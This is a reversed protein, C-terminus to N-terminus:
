PLAGPRTPGPLPRASFVADVYAQPQHLAGATTRAYGTLAEAHVTLAVCATLLLAIPLYEILRLLPAARDVPSWFFRMGVRSLAILAFLGSVIIMGFLAWSTSAVGAGPSHLLASLLAFKGIFGALPPLGAVMLATVIFAERLSIM